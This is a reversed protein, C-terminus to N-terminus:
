IQIMEDEEYDKNAKTGIIDEWCMPSVGNGPRKTTLNMETFVEGKSIKYKAVISKRAVEINSMEAETPQKIGDGFALEVNRISSVMAKLENPELSAKHDPGEMSRDLTFHKEIVTAGMGVAAVPVEIGLTHDSYGVALGFFNQLTIMAKLNVDNYPTPYETTCHMLTIDNAGNDNLLKVTREVEKLTSMGTSLIIPQHLNAIKVLYPYNTIEGSPIKWLVSGINVLFDISDVDFPTSLFHIGIEKCYERLKVFDEFTLLLNKLMEKQSMIKNLNNKQYEAMKASATVFSELKATQFKVIDAGSEKAVMALKKAVELKGNHNVGAEAIILVKSM